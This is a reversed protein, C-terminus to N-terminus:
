KYVKKAQELAQRVVSGATSMGYQSSGHVVCAFALPCDEDACFGVMWGDNENAYGDGDTDIEGTGSKACLTLGDVSWGYNKYSYDAKDAAFLMYERLKEATSSSILSSGKTGKKTFGFGKLMDGPNGDVIYPQIPTGGNAISSALISMQMPNVKTDYQGIGSLALLHEDTGSVDFYGRETMIGNIDFSTNIGMKEATENMKDQGLRVALDAFVYNCSHAFAEKLTVTGHAEGEACDITNGGFDHSGQCNWTETEVGPINEIAAVTTVIKFISGPTYTFSLVKDYYVDKYEDENEKTIKPPHAPDYTKTCTDCIVEGTKYNYIVCAGSDYDKLANYAAKCTEADVTLTIDGGKRFSKPLDIGWIFNYGSLDARYRSLVATSISLTDDGVVHLLAKRVDEDKNYKRKGDVTKALVKGNRDLIKGSRMLGSEGAIHGNYPKDVWDSAQTVTRFTLLILGIIFAIVFMYIIWTRGLIRKM